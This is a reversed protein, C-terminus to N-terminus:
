RARMRVNGSGAVRAGPHSSRDCAIRDQQTDCKEGGRKPMGLRADHACDSAKGNGAPDAGFEDSTTPPAEDRIGRRWSMDQRIHLPRRQEQYKGTTASESPSVTGGVGGDRGRGVLSHPRLIRIRCKLQHIAPQHASQATMNQDSM